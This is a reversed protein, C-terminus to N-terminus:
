NQFNNESFCQVVDKQRMAQLVELSQIQEENYKLSM